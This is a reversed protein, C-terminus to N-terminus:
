DELSEGLPSRAARTLLGSHFATPEKREHAKYELLRGITPVNDDSGLSAIKKMRRLTREAIKLPRPAHGGNQLAKLM